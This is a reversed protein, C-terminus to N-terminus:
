LFHVSLERLNDLTIADFIPCVRICLVKPPPCDASDPNSNYMDLHRM